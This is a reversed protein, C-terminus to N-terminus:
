KPGELRKAAEELLASLHDAAAKTNAFGKRMLDAGNILRIAWALQHGTALKADDRHKANMLLGAM